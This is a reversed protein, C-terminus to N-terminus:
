REVLSSIRSIPTSVANGADAEANEAPERLDGGRAAVFPTAKMRTGASEIEIWAGNGRSDSLLPVVRVDEGASAPGAFLCALAASGIATFFAKARRHGADM